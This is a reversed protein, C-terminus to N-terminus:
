KSLGNVVFEVFAKQHPENQLLEIKNAKGRKVVSCLKLWRFLERLQGTQTTATNPKCNHLNKVLYNELDNQDVEIFRSITRQLNFSDLKQLQVINACIAYSYGCLTERSFLGVGMAYFLDIIKQNVKVGIYNDSGKNDCQQARALNEIIEIPFIAMGQLIGKHGKAIRALTIENDKSPARENRDKIAAILTQLAESHQNEKQQANAKQQKEKKTFLGKIYATPTVIAGVDACEVNKAACEISIAGNTITVIDGNNATVKLSM